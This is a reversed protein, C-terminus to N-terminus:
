EPIKKVILYYAFIVMGISIASDAINFAPWHRGGIHLDIFDVVEGIRIRDALNGVAGGFILAFGTTLPWHEAPTRWHLFFVLGAAVCAVGIFLIIRVIPDQDAFLGFAGGPNTVHVVNAFGPIVTIRSHLPLWAVVMWKTLQDGLVVLACVAGFRIHKTREDM